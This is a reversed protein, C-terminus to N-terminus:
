KQVHYIDRWGKSVALLNNSSNSKKTFDEKRTNPPTRNLVHAGVNLLLKNARGILIRVCVNMPAIMFCLLNLCCANIMAPLRIYHKWRQNSLFTGRQFTGQGIMISASLCIPWDYHLSFVERPFILCTQFLWLRNKEEKLGKEFRSENHWKIRLIYSLTEAQTEAM